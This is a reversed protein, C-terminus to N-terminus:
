FSSNGRARIVSRTCVRLVKLALSRLMRCVFIVALIIILPLVVLAVLLTELVGDWTLSPPPTPMQRGHLRIAREACWVARQLSTQPRDQMERGVRISNERYRKDNILKDIAKRLQAESFTHLDLGLGVGLREYNEVNLWQDVMLPIGLMPIGARLAEETSQLGGQTIFLLLKEHRLLDPQPLWSFTHVNSSFAPADGKWKVIVDYPLTSFVRIFIELREPPLIAPHMHSGFSMYIVGHKSSDMLSQIDEPLKKPPAVHLGGIHVIKLPLPRYGEWVPHLSVLQAVAGRRMERVSPIDAGFIEKVKMDQKEIMSKQMYHMRVRNVYEWTSLNYRRSYGVDPYIIPHIPVGADEYMEDEIGLTSMLIAPANYIHALALAQYVWAEIIVLDFKKTKDVFLDRMAETKMQKPFLDYMIDYATKIQTNFDNPNGAKLQAKRYGDAWFKYSVDHLNIETINQSSQGPPYIPDTTVFTVHHGRRLLEKTLAQFPTQHSHIPSPAVVLIRSSDVSKWEGFFCVLVFLEVCCTLVSM